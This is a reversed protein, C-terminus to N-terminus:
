PYDVGAGIVLLHRDDTRVVWAWHCAWMNDFYRAWPQMPDAEHYSIQADGTLRGLVVDDFSLFLAQAESPEISLHHWPPRHL